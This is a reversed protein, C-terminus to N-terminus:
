THRRDRIEGRPLTERSYCLALQSYDLVRVFMTLIVRAVVTKWNILSRENDRNEMDFSWCADHM